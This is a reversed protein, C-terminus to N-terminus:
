ALHKALIAAPRFLVCARYYMIMNDYVTIIYMEIYYHYQYIAHM